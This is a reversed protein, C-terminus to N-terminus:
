LDRDEPDFEPQPIEVLEYKERFKRERREFADEALVQGITRWPARGTQASRVIDETSVPPVPFRNITLSDDPEPEAAKRYRGFGLVRQVDDATITMTKRRKSDM